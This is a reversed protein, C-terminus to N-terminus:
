PFVILGAYEAVARAIIIPRVLLPAPPTLQPAPTHEAGLRLPFYVAAVILCIAATKFLDRWNKRLVFFLLAIMPFILGSEKSLASLVLALGSAVLLLLKRAGSLEAARIVLYLGLFGFLASLPDARGSVYVVAASQDPHVAWILAAFLAILRSHRREIAFSSLFEEAFLFLALAALAHWLVSMAHYLLPQFGVLAYDFTYTLRQLPRYFDSATADVFLFHNFGEPILRWSRILPDRLILATDDWVFGDRLAPAYSIFVAGAILLAAFSKKM